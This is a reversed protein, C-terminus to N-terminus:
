SRPGLFSIHPTTQSLAWDKPVCCVCPGVRAGGEGPWLAPLLLQAYTVCVAGSGGVVCLVSWLVRGGRGLAKPHVEGCAPFLGGGGPVRGPPFQGGDSPVVHPASVWMGRGLLISM